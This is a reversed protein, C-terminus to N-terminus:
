PQGDTLCTAAARDKAKHWSCRPTRRTTDCGHRTLYRQSQWGSGDQRHVVDEMSVAKEAVVLDLVLGFQDRQDGGLVLLLHVRLRVGGSSGMRGKRFVTSNGPTTMGMVTPRSRLMRRIWSTYRPLLVKPTTLWFSPWISSGRASSRLLIPVMAVMMRMNRMGSPLVVAMMWPLFRKSIM